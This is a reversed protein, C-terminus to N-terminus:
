CCIRLKGENSLGKIEEGNRSSIEVPYLIRSQCSKYRTGSEAKGHWKEPSFHMTVQTTKGMSHQKKGSRKEKDKTKM